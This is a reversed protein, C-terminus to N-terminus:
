IAKLVGTSDGIRQAKVGMRELMALYLNTMPTERPVQIHRGPTLTGGGRGALLIPLNNHNHANGDTIGSGYVIMTQDLLSHDHERLDKIRGLFYALQETYFKDIMAIKALKAPDDQHHSLQHHAEPVAIEPFARNSGEHALMFTAIRTSDTQFALAILDFMLRIHEQYSAPVGAPEKMQAASAEQQTAGSEARQIRREVDRVADLYQDLKRNDAPNLRRRMSSADSMVFDLVSKDLQRRAPSQDTPAGLGFLREFVARPDRDPPLPSTENRWSLNYQYACSYGSDCQGVSREGETSLELSPLRTTQGIQDAAIQDVSQALRIDAGGTKRAQCGTLFTAAARAHDGGGDGNAMAKHHALGSIISFDNKFQALPALTPSLEYAAETGERITWNHVNVGNPIYLFAMRVPAAAPQTTATAAYARTAGIGLSELMPLAMLAGTGRLFARRSPRVSAPQMLNRM